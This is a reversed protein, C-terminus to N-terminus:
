VLSVAPYLLRALVRPLFTTHIRAFLLSVITLMFAMMLLM